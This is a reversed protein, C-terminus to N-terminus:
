LWNSHGFCYWVACHLGAPVLGKCLLTGLETSGLGGEGGGRTSHVPATEGGVQTALSSGSLVTFDLLGDDLLADPCVAVTRGMQRSNGAVLMLLDTQFEHESQQQQQQQLDAKSRSPPTFRLTAGAHPQLVKRSTLRKLVACLLWSLSAVNLSWLTRATCAQVLTQTWDSGSFLNHTSKSSLYDAPVEAMEGTMKGKRDCGGGGYGKGYFAIAVPGLLRKWKSSLEDAPVEALGGAVAVNLFPKGNLTAVDIPRITSPDLALRLAEKPDQSRLAGPSPPPCRPNLSLPM